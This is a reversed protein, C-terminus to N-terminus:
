TPFISCPILALHLLCLLIVSFWVSGAVHHCCQSLKERHGPLCALALRRPSPEAAVRQLRRVKNECKRLMKKKGLEYIRLHKGVGILVRGQFPVIAGPVDDVATKHVFELSEGQQKLQYVHLYGGSCSRPSLIMDKVTGVIVFQDDGQSAFKVLAVSCAVCFVGSLLPVRCLTTCQCRRAHHLYQM